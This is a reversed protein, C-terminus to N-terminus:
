AISGTAAKQAVYADWGKSRLQCAPCEGCGYGWAHRHEHDGNYCTHSLELVVLLVGLEEAMAFTEAKNMDMLPTEIKIESNAGLNLADQMAKIFSLRCDPYGSYDTECVGVYLTDAGFAQAFAHAYTIFAANRNRVFSAPLNEDSPHAENVPQEDNLLASGPDLMPIRMALVHEIGFANAINRAAEVEVSHRQGYIFTIVAVQEHRAVALGLCTTSDQGGSLVVVAKGTKNM